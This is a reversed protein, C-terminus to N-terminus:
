KASETEGARVARRHQQRRALAFQQQGIEGDGPALRLRAALEGGEEPAVTALFLSAAAQPFAQGRQAGREAGFRDRAVALGHAESRNRQGAIDGPQFAEGPRILRREIWGLQLPQRSRKEVALLFAARFKRVPEAEFARAAEAMGLAQKGPSDLGEALRAPADLLERRRLPQQREIRQALLAM